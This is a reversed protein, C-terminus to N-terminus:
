EKKFIVSINSAFLKISDYHEDEKEIKEKNFVPYISNILTKIMKLSHGTYYIKLYKWGTFRELLMEKTYRRLHGIRRDIIYNVPLFLPNLLHYAIPVTTMALAGKKAIRSIDSIADKERPLHELIANAVIGSACDSRIPLAEASCCIMLVHNLLGERALYKKLRMLGAINLDCAVVLAGRKAAEISMYGLGCADDVFVRNKLTKMRSFFREIYKNQWCEIARTTGYDSSNSTFYRIQRRLHRPLNKLDVLIPIGQKVPYTNKCATCRLSSDGIPIFKGKCFPCALLSLLKHRM